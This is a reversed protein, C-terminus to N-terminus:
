RTGSSDMGCGVMINKFIKINDECRRRPRSRQRNEEGERVMVKYSDSDEGISSAHWVWRIKV